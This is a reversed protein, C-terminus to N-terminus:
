TVVDASTRTLKFVKATPDGSAFVTFWTKDATFAGALTGTYVGASTYAWVIAASLENILSTTVTPAAVGAQNLIVKYIKALSKDEL